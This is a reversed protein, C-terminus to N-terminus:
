DTVPSRTATRLSRLSLRWRVRQWRSREDVITDEVSM